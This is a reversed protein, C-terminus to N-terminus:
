DTRLLSENGTPYLIIDNVNFFAHLSQYILYFIYYVYMSNTNGQTKSNLIKELYKKIGMLRFEYLKATFM